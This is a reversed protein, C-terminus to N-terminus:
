KANCPAPAPSVPRAHMPARPDAAAALSLMLLLFRLASIEITGGSGCSRRM